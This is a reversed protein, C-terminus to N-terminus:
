HDDINDLDSGVLSKTRGYSKAKYVESVNYDDPSNLKIEENISLHGLSTAAQVMAVDYDDNLDISTNAASANFSAALGIIAVISALKNKIM